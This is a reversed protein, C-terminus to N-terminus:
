PPVNLRKEFARLLRTFEATSEYFGRVAPPSNASRKKKHQKKAVLSLFADITLQKAGLNKCRSALQRDNTVVTMQSPSKACAVEETIYADATSGKPTYVLELADFHGRTPHLPHEQAGDFVLIIQLNLPSITENLEEIMSQRIKELAGRKKLRRFLLNYGDVLYKM